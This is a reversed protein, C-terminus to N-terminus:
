PHYRAWNGKQGSLQDLEMWAQGGTCQRAPGDGGGQGLTLAAEVHQHPVSSLDIPSLKSKRAEEENRAGSSGSSQTRCCPCLCPGISWDWHERLVQMLWKEM